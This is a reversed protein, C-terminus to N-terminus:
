SIKRWENYPEAVVNDTELQQSFMEIAIEYQKKTLNRGNHIIIQAPFGPDDLTQTQPQTIAAMIEKGEIETTLELM